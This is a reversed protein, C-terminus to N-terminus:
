RRAAPRAAIWQDVEAELYGVSGEGLSRAHPFTPDFYRSKPNQREYFTSRAMGMRAMAVKPRLMVGGPAIAPIDHPAAGQKPPAAAANKKHAQSEQPHGPVSETSIRTSPTSTTAQSGTVEFGSQECYRAADERKLYTNYAVRRCKVWDSGFISIEGIDVWKQLDNLRRGVEDLWQALHPDGEKLGVMSPDWRNSYPAGRYWRLRQILLRAPKSRPYLSDSAIADSRATRMAPYGSRGNSRWPDIADAIQHALEMCTIFNGQPLTVICHKPSRSETAVLLSVEPEPVESKNM